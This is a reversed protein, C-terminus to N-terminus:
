RFGRAAREFFPYLLLGFFFGGLHAEWAIDAGGAMPKMLQAAIPNNLALMFGTWLLVPQSLLPSFKAADPGFITSRNFAFRVLGGLLGSVGGSAGVLLTFEKPHLLIFFLAGAVGSLLYFTLFMSSAAFAASSQLAGAAGMRRALPTGFALLWLLNFLLHVISAHVFMHAILPSIMSLVGNNAGPGATFRGPIVAAALEIVGATRSPFVVMLIFAALTLGAILMVIGPANFVRSADAEGGPRRLRFPQQPKEAM